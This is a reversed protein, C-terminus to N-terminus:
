FFERALIVNRTQCKNQSFVVGFQPATAQNRFVNVQQVFYNETKFANKIGKLDNQVMLILTDVQQQLSKLMQDHTVEKEQSLKTRLGTLIVLADQLKGVSKFNNAKELIDSAEVRILQKHVVKDLMVQSTSDKPEIRIDTQSSLTVQKNRMLDTMTLTLRILPFSALEFLGLGDGGMEIIAMFDKSFGSYINKLDITATRPTQKNWQKGYLKSFAVHRFVDNQLLEIKLHAQTALTTTVM